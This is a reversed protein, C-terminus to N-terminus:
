SVFLAVAMFLASSIGLPVYANSLNDRHNTLAAEDQLEDSNLWYFFFWISIPPPLAAIARYVFM